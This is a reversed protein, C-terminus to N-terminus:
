YSKENPVLTYVWQKNDSCVHLEVLFIELPFVLFEYLRDSLFAAFLQLRLLRIVLQLLTRHKALYLVRSILGDVGKLSRYRGALGCISGIVM